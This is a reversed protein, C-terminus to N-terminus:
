EVGFIFHFKFTNSYYPNGTQLFTAVLFVFRGGEYMLREFVFPKTSLNIRLKNFILVKFMPM